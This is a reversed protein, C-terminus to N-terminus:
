PNNAVLGDTMGQPLVMEGAATKRVAELVESVTASTLLYGKAGAKLAEHLDERTDTVTLFLFRAEPLKERIANMAELGTCRPMVIDMLIVDPKLEMAMSVALPRDPAVAVIEIDNEGSLIETLVDRV